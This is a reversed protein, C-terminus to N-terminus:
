ANDILENIQKILSGFIGQVQGIIVPQLLPEYLNPLVAFGRNWMVPWPFHPAASDSKDYNFYEMGMDEPPITDYLTDTFLDWAHECIGDVYEQPQTEPVLAAVMQLRGRIEQIVNNRIWHQFLIDYSRWTQDSDVAFLLIIEAGLSTVCASAVEDIGARSDILVIDPKYYTELEDLLRNLRTHWAERFHKNRPKAMWIRGLQSIYEGTDQGHAPVVYIASNHSLSSFGIMYPFITAGNDVLDEVLWDVIGYAPLNEKALLISSIGPSQLDLDLVLVKKGQEALAWTTAALATSRGVGGKISYFVIRRTKATVGIHAWDNGTLLRDAILVNPMGQLPFHSVEKICDDLFSEYIITNKKALRSELHVELSKVIADLAQKAEADHELNGDVILRVIGNLDRNIILKGIKSLNETQEVFSEYLKPIIENFTKM